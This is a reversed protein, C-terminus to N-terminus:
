VHVAESPLTLSFRTGGEERKSAEVVGGHDSIVKCVIALGLGRNGSKTTVFPDFLTHELESPIGPGNDEITISIPISRGGQTSRRFYVGRPCQTTIRLTANTQDRMAECANTFLNLFTQVLLAHSGAIEPLSPDYYEELQVCDKDPTLLWASQLAEHINVSESRMAEPGSFLEMESMMDRIRDVESIIIRALEGNEPSTQMLQAAGRIGSLPNKIEHALIAAMSAASRMHERQSHHQHLRHEMGRDDVVIMLQSPMFLPIIHLNVPRMPIHPGGLTVAYEKITVGSDLASELMSSLNEPYHVHRLLPTNQVSGGEGLLSQAAHNVYSILLSDTVLLIAAPLVDMLHHPPATINLAPKPM